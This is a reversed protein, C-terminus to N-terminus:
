NSAAGLKKRVAELFAEETADCVGMNVHTGDAWECLMASVLGKELTFYRVDDGSEVIAVMYAETVAEPAPMHVLVGSEIGALRPPEPYEEGPAAEMDNWMATLAHQASGNTAGERLLRFVGGGKTRVLSRLVGHAFGYHRGRPRKTDNAMAAMLRAMPDPADDPATLKATAKKRKKKKRPREPEPEPARTARRIYLQVAILAVFFLGVFVWIADRSM